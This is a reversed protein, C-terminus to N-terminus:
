HEGTASLAAMLGSIRGGSGYFRLVDQVAAQELETGVDEVEPESFSYISDVLGYEKAEQATLYTEKAMIDELVAKDESFRKMYVDVMAAQTKDLAAARKRFDDANGFAMSVPNHLFFNGLESM